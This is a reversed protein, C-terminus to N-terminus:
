IANITDRANQFLETGLKTLQAHEAVTEECDRFAALASAQHKRLDKSWSPSQPSEIVEQAAVVMRASVWMAHFIGEMPRPQRRLPSTFEATADNLVVPDTLHFLFMQQHSSEHILTMLVTPLDHLGLPNVLISGFADFVTAGGFDVEEKSAAVAFYVQNTLLLMEDFWDKATESLTNLAGNVLKKAQEENSASPGKLDTTLGVDDAFVNKLLLVDDRHMSNESLSLIRFNDPRNTVRAGIDKLIRFLEPVKSMDHDLVAKLLAGHLAFVAADPFQAGDMILNRLHSESIPPEIETGLVDFIIHQMSQMLKLRVTANSQAIFSPNPLLYNKM